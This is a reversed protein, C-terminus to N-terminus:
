KEFLTWQSNSVNIFGSLVASWTNNIIVGTAKMTNNVKNTTVYVTSDSPHYLFYYNLFSKATNSDSVFVYFDTDINAGTATTPFYPRMYLKAHSSNNFFNNVYAFAYKSSLQDPLEPWVNNYKKMFLYNSITSNDATQSANKGGADSWGPFKTDIVAQTASPNDKLYKYVETYETQLQMAIAWAADASQTVGDNYAIVPNTYATGQAGSYLYVKKNLNKILRETTYVENNDSDYVSVKLNIRDKDETGTVPITVYYIVKYQNYFSEGLVNEEAKSTTIGRTLYGGAESRTTGNVNALYLPYDTSNDPATWDTRIQLKTAYTIEKEIYSFVSDGIYKQTNKKETEVYIRNGFFYVTGAVTLVIALIALTVIIEVLTFGSPDSLRNKLTKM